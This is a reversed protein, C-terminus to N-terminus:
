MFRMYLARWKFLTDLGNLAPKMEGMRKKAIPVGSLAPTADPILPRANSGNALSINATTPTADSTIGSNFTISRTDGFRKVLLVIYMAVGYAIECISSPFLCVAYALLLSTLCETLSLFGKSLFSLFPTRPRGVKFSTILAIPARQQFLGGATREAAKKLDSLTSKKGVPSPEFDLM